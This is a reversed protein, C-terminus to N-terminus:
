DKSDLQILSYKNQHRCKKVLESRTNILESAKENIYLAESLCLHCKRAAPNYDPAHGVISWNVDFTGGTDKIKWIEKSITTSNEYKRNSFSSKHNGLRKKWEPASIGIYEKTGYNPLNSTIKGSYIVNKALCYGSVVLFCYHLFLCLCVYNCFINISLCSLYM